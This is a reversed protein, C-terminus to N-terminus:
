CHFIRQMKKKRRREYVILTGYINSPFYTCKIHVLWCFYFSFHSDFEFQICVCIIYISNELSAFKNPWIFVLIIYLFIMMTTSMTSTTATTTPRCVFMKWASVTCVLWLYNMCDINFMFLLCMAIAYTCYIRSYMKFSAEVWRTGVCVTAVTVYAEATTSTVCMYMKIITESALMYWFLRRTICLMRVHAKTYPFCAWWGISHM